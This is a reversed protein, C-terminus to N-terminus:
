LTLVAFWILNISRPTFTLCQSLCKPALNCSNSLNELMGSKGGYFVLFVFVCFRGLLTHFLNRIKLQFNKLTGLGVEEEEKNM